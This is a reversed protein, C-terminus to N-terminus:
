PVACYNWRMAPAFSRRLANLHQPIRWGPFSTYRSDASNRLTDAHASQVNDMEKTLCEVKEATQSSIESLTTKFSAEADALQAQLQAAMNDGQGVIEKLRTKQESRARSLQDELERGLARGKESYTSFVATQAAELKEIEAKQAEIEKDKAKLTEEHDKELAKLDKAKSQLKRNLHVLLGVMVLFGVIVMISVYWSM